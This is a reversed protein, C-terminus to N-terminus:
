PPLTIISCRNLCHHHTIVGTNKVLSCIKDHVHSSTVFQEIACPLNPHICHGNGIKLSSCRLHRTGRVTRREHENTPTTVRTGSMPTQHGPPITSSRRKPNTHSALHSLTNGSRPGHDESAPRVQLVHPRQLLVAATTCRYLDRAGLGTAVKPSEPQRCGDLIWGAM